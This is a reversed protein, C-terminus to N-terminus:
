RALEKRALVLAGAAALVAPYLGALIGVAAATEGGSILLGDALKHLPTFRLAPAAIRQLGHQLMLGTRSLAASLASPEAEAHHAHEDHRPEHDATDGLPSLVHAMLTVAILALAAFTATPFSFCTGFTVGLAALLALSGFIVVLARIYNVAFGTERVLIAVPDRSDFIVPASLDPAGTHRFAVRLAGGDAPLVNAPLALRYTGERQENMTHTFAEPGDAPGATWTGTAPARGHWAAHIRFRLTLDPARGSALRRRLAPDPRFLWHRTGGASVAPGVADPAPRWARRGVLLDSRLRARDNPGIGDDHLVRHVQVAVGLGAGALLIADLLLLGVWKGLWIQIAHVPKARVLRIQRGEVDGAVAACGLWLSAVGLVAATFGLTYVLRVRCLGEPTGDGKLTLPLAAVIAIMLVALGAFLRSRVCARFAIAAIAGVARM